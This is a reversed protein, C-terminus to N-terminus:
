QSKQQKIVYKNLKLIKLLVLAKKESFVNSIDSYKNPIKVKEAFLLTIQAKWALHISMSVVWSTVHVVFAKVNKDLVAKAFKKKNILKVQKTTPM